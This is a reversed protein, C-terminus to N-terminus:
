GNKEKEEYEFPSLRDWSIERKVIKAPNGAIICNAENFSRTVVSGVGVVCNEFIQAKKTFNVNSGIWCHDGIIIPNQPRNVVKKLKKDIIAHGDGWIQTAGAFM